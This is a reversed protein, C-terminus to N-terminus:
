EERFCHKCTSCTLRNIAENDIGNEKPCVLALSVRKEPERRTTNTRFVVDSRSLSGPPNDARNTKMWATKVGAVAPPLGTERDASFWLQLNECDALSRLATLIGSIRWSRTYSWFRTDPCARIIAEWSQVYEPSFFDGAVHIRVLDIARTKIERSIVSAFRETQQALEYNIRYSKQVNEYAFFGTKAYCARACVGSQGPCTLGAPLSFSYAREGTKRNGPRLHNM